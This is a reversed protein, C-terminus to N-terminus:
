EDVTTMFIDDIDSYDAKEFTIKNNVDQIVYLTYKEATDTLALFAYTITKANMDVKYGIYFKVGYEESSRNFLNSISEDVSDLPQLNIIWGSENVVLTGTTPDTYTGAKVQSLIDQYGYVTKDGFIGLAFFLTTTIIFAVIFAGIAILLNKHSEAWFKFSFDKISM